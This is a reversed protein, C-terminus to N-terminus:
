ILLLWRLILLLAVGPLGLIGVIAANLWNVGLEIGIFGGLFNLILLALFGFAINLLLKFVLRIPKTFIRLCIIVVVAIVVIRLVGDM